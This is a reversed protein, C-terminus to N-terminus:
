KCTAFLRITFSPSTGGVVYHANLIHQFPGDIITAAALAGSGYLTPVKTGVGSTVAYQKSVATTQIFHIRDNYIIGDPGDQVYTDLTPATGSVATAELSWACATIQGGSVLSNYLVFDTNATVTRADVLEIGADRTFLGPCSNTGATCSSNSVNSVKVDAEQNNGNARSALLAVALPGDIPGNPLAYFSYTSGTGAPNGLPMANGSNALGGAPIFGYFGSFGTAPNRGGIAVPNISNLSVGVAVAGQVPIVNAAAGCTNSSTQVFFLDATDPVGGLASSATFKFAIEAAATTASFGVATGSIPATVPNSIGNILVSSFRGSNNTYDQAGGDSTQFVSVNFTHANTPNNNVVYFCVGVEPSIPVLVYTINFSNGWAVGRVSVYKSGASLIRDPFQAKSQVATCLLLSVLLTIRRM